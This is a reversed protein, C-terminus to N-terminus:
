SPAGLEKCAIVRQDNALFTLYHTYVNRVRYRGKSAKKALEEIIEILEILKTSSKM